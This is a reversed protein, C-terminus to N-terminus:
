VTHGMSTNRNKKQGRKRGVGMNIVRDYAEEYIDDYGLENIIEKIGIEFAKPAIEILDEGTHYKLINMAEIDIKRLYYTARHLMDPKASYYSVFSEISSFHHEHADDVMDKNGIISYVSQKNYVPKEKAIYYKEFYLADEVEYEGRITISHVSDMWYDMSKHQQFRILVDKTSGVYLLRNDEGYYFYVYM